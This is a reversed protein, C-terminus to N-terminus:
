PAEGPQEQTEAMVEAISRLPAATAAPPPSPPLPLQQDPAGTERSPTLAGPGPSVLGDVARVAWETPLAGKNKVRDFDAEADYPAVGPALTDITLSGMVNLLAARAAYESSRNRLLSIQASTLELQANLLEITSRLGFREEQRMGFFATESARVNAEDAVLANRSAALTSWQQSVAQVVNRRTADINLRDANNLEVARRSNSANLGSTFLPQSVFAQATVSNLYPEPRALSSPGRGAQVRLNVSPLNQARAEAIRSRSGQEAFRAALLTHNQQEAARVAEEFVGPLPGLDPEPALAGPNQGVLAAYASRSIALQAEASAAQSQASALRAQAQALDTRTNEQVEVKAETEELQRRLVDVGARTVELIQQDRRVGVYANIVRALLDAEAQRLRERAARVDSEAAQLGATARGGTFIPQTISLTETSSRGEIHVGQPTRVEEYALNADASARLGFASRARVYDENAARVQARQSQLQPNTQYALALADALTESRAAGGLAWLGATAILTLRLSARM